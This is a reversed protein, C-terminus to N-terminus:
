AAAAPKLAPALGLKARLKTKSGVFLKPGLKVVAGDLKGTHILYVLKRYEVGLFAAIAPGGWLADSAASDDLKPM